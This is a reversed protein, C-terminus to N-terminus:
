VYDQPDQNKSNAYPTSGSNARYHFSSSTCNIASPALMRSTISEKADRIGSWWEPIQSKGRRLRGVVGVEDIRRLLLGITQLKSQSEDLRTRLGFVPSCMGATEFQSMPQNALQM